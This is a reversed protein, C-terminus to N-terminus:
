ISHSTLFHWGGQTCELLSEKRGKGERLSTQGLLSCVSWNGWLTRFPCSGFWHYFYSWLHLLTQKEYSLASLSGFLQDPLKVLSQPQMITETKTFVTPNGCWINPSLYWIYTEPVLVTECPCIHAGVEQKVREIFAKYSVHRSSRYIQAMSMRSARLHTWSVGHKWTFNLFHCSSSPSRYFHRTARCRTLDQCSGALYFYPTLPPQLVYKWVFASLFCSDRRITRFLQEM